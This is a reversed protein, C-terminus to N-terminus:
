HLQLKQNSLCREPWSPGMLVAEKFLLDQMVKKLSGLTGESILIGMAVSRVVGDCPAQM